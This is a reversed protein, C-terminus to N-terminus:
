SVRPPSRSSWSTAWGSVRVAGGGASAVRQGRAAAGPAWVAGAAAAQAADPDCGGLWCAMCQAHGSHFPRKDGDGRLSGCGEGAALLVVGSADSAPVIRHRGDLAIATLNQLIVCLALLWLGLVSARCSRRPGPRSTAASQRSTEAATM